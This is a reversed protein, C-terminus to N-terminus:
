RALYIGENNAIGEKPSPIALENLPQVSISQLFTTVVNIASARILLEQSNGTTVETLM